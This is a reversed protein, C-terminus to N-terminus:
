TSDSEEPQPVPGANDASATTEADDDLDRHLGHQRLEDRAQHEILLPVFEQVPAEALREAKADVVRDIDGPAAPRGDEDLLDEHLRQKVIEVRKDSLNKDAM